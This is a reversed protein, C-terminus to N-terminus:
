FRNIIWRRYGSPHSVSTIVLSGIPSYADVQAGDVVQGEVRNNGAALAFADPVFSIYQRAYDVVTDKGAALAVDPPVTAEIMIPEATKVRHLDTVEARLEIPLWAKFQGPDEKKQKAGTKRSTQLGIQSSEPSEQPSAHPESM